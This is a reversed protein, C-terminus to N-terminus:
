EKGTEGGESVAARAEPAVAVAGAAAGAARFLVGKDLERVDDDCDSPPAYRRCLWDVCCFPCRSAKSTM